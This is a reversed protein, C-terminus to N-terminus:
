ELDAGEVVVVGLHTVMRVVQWLQWVGGVGDEVKLYYSHVFSLQLFIQLTRFLKLKFTLCPAFNEYGREFVKQESQVTIHCSPLFSFYPQGM